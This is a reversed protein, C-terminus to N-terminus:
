AVAEQPYHARLAEHVISQMSEGTERSDRKLADFLAPHMKLLQTRAGFELRSTKGSPPCDLEYHACLIERMIDALSRDQSDAEARIQKFLYPDLDRVLFKCWGDDSSV